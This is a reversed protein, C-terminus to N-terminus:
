VGKIEISKGQAVRGTWRFQDDAQTPSELTVREVRSLGSARVPSMGASALSSGWRGLGATFERLHGLDNVAGTGAVFTIVLMLAAAHWGRSTQNTESKNM